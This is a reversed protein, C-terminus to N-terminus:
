GGFPADSSTPRKRRFRRIQSLNWMGSPPSRRHRLVVQGLAFAEWVVDRGPHVGVSDEEHRDTGFGSTTVLKAALGDGNAQKPGDSVPLLQVKPPDMDGNQHRIMHMQKHAEGRSWTHLADNTCPLSECRPIKSNYPLIAKEIPSQPARFRDLFLTRVNQLVGYARPENGTGPVPRVGPHMSAPRGVHPLSGPWNGAIRRDRRSRGVVGPEVIM